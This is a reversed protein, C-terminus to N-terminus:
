LAVPLRVDEGFHRHFRGDGSGSYGDLYVPEALQVPHRDVAAIGPWGAPAGAGPALWQAAVGMLPFPEGATAKGDPLLDGTPLLTMDEVRLVLHRSIAQLLPDLAAPFC